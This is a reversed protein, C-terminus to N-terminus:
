FFLQTDLNLCPVQSTNFHDLPNMPLCWTQIRYLQLMCYSTTDGASPISYCPSFVYSAPICVFLYFCTDHLFLHYELILLKHVCILLVYFSSALLLLCCSQTIGKWCEAYVRTKDTIRWHLTMLSLVNKYEELLWILILSFCLANCSIEVTWHESSSPTFPLFSFLNM